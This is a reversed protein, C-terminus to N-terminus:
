ELQYMWFSQREYISLFHVVWVGDGAANSCSCWQLASFMPNTDYVRDEACSTVTNQQSVDEKSDALLCSFGQAQPYTCMSASFENCAVDRRFWGM